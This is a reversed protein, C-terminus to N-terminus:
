DEITGYFGVRDVISKFFSFFGFSDFAFQFHIKINGAKILEWDIVTM